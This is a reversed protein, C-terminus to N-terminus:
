KKKSCSYGAIKCYTPFHRSFEDLSCLKPDDGTIFSKLQRYVGPKYQEDLKDSCDIPQVAISGKEQIQLTELPRLILRHQSTLLEIGWRGPADWNAQYTFLAGKATIGSGAFISAAPHWDLSGHHRTEMEVPEGGLHFALNMVHTSNALAWREKEVPSKNLPSIKHSWETFEFNFSQVGGDLSIIEQAKLVSSFFRRNYAVFVKAKIEKSKAELAELEDDFLALPKEVLINKVGYELLSTTNRSLQEVNTVVIAGSPIEPQGQLFNDVGGTLVDMGISDRLSSASKDGRGIIIFPLNLAQLVNAYAKSMPGAGILWYM